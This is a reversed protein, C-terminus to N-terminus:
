KIRAILEELARQWAPNPNIAIAARLEDAAEKLRGDAALQQALRVHASALGPKLRIAEALESYVQPTKGLAAAAAAAGAHAEAMRPDLAVTENYLRLADGARGQSLTVGALGLRAEASEPTLRVAEAYHAAAEDIRGAKALAAGLNGQAESFLPNLRVAEAFEALAEGDRAQSTAVIGLNNHLTAEYVPSHPPALELAHRFGAAAADLAGSDRDSAALLEFARYNRDDLSIAHRWLTPSDRWVWVQSRTAAACTLVVVAALTGTLAASWGRSQRFAEGGWAVAIALGIIPFYMYRDAIAQEGTQMLGSVPLLTVAFLLWGTLLFPWRRALRLVAVTIIALLFGSALVATVPYTELRYFTSLSVPWFAKGLYRAYGVIANSVRATFSVAGLPAVSSGQVFVTVLGVVLAAAFLPLKEAVLKLWTSRDALTWQARKLPWADFVLLVAPLTVVMPKSLLALVFLASVLLYRKWNRARVYWPYACLTAMVFLTSLVDKRESVWAVSEVHLPHVGFIAAVFASRGTSVTMSRLAVFLLLTAGAHLAINVAHHASPNEGFLSVDLMLSLMTLPHWNGAVKSTAAWRLGEWSLGNVVHLNKTIYEGDDWNVYPFHWAPAYSVLVLVALAALVWLPRVPSLPKTEVASSRRARPKQV